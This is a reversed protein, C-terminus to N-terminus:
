RLRGVTEARHQDTGGCRNLVVQSALVAGDDKAERKVNGDGTRALGVTRTNERPAAATKDHGVLWSKCLVARTHLNTEPKSDDLCLVKLSDPAGEGAKEIPAAGGM